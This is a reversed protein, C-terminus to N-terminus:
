GQVMCRFVELNQVKSGSGCGGLGVGCVDFGWGEV